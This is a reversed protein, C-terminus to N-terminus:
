TDTKSDVVVPTTTIGTKLRIRCRGLIEPNSYQGMATIWLSEHRRRSRIGTKNIHLCVMKSNSYRDLTRILHIDIRSIHLHVTKRRDPVLVTSNPQRQLIKIGTEKPHQCTMSLFRHHKNTAM